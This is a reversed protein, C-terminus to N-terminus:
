TLLISMSQLYTVIFPLPNVSFLNKATSKSWVSTHTPTSLIPAQNSLQFRFQMLNPITTSKLKFIIRRPSVEKCGHLPSTRQNVVSTTESQCRIPNSQLMTMFNSNAIHRERNRDNEWKAKRIPFKTRPVPKSHISVQMRNASHQFLVPGTQSPYALIPMSWQWNMVHLNAKLEDESFVLSWGM